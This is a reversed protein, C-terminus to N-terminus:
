FIYKGENDQDESDEDFVPDFDNPFSEDFDVNSSEKTEENRNITEMTDFSNDLISESTQNIPYDMPAGFVNPVEFSSSSSSNFQEEIKNELEVPNNQISEDIVPEFQIPSNYESDDESVNESIENNQTENYVSSEDIPSYKENNSEVFTNTNTEISPAVQDGKDLISNEISSLQDLAKQIGGQILNNNNVCTKLQESKSSLANTLEACKSRLADNEAQLQRIKEVASEVKQELLLVQELTNM